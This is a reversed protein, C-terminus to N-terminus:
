ELALQERCSTGGSDATTRPSTQAARTVDLRCRTHVPLLPLLQLQEYVRPAIVVFCNSSYKRIAAYAAKYYAELPPRNVQAVRWFQSCASPLPM